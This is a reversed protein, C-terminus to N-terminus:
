RVRHTAITTVIAVIVMIAVITIIPIPSHSTSQLSTWAIVLTLLLMLLSFIRLMRISIAINRPTKYKESLNLSKPFYCLILMAAGSITIISCPVIIGTPSGWANPNGSADFHTPVIYPAQKVFWIILGWVIIALILFAVEFITGEVTRYVKINNKEM